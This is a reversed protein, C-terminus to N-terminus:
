VFATKNNAVFTKLTTLPRGLLAEGDPSVIAAQNTAFLEFLELMGKAQWEPWGTSLLSDLTQEETPSVYSVDKETVDAFMAAMDEGHLLRNYLLSICVLDQLVLRCAFSFISHCVILLCPEVRKMFM